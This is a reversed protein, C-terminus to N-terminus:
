SEWKEKKKKIKLSGSARTSPPPTTPHIKDTCIFTILLHSVNLILCTHYQYRYCVYIPDRM